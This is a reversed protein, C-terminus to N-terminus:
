LSILRTIITLTDFIQYINANGFQHSCQSCFRERIPVQIINVGNLRKTLINYIFVNQYNNIINGIPRFSFCKPGICKYDYGLEDIFENNSYKSGM